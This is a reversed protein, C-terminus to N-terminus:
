SGGKLQLYSKWLIFIGVVRDQSHPHSPDESGLYDRSGHWLSDSDMMCIDGCRINFAKGTGAIELAGGADL